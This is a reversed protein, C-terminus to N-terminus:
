AADDLAGLQGLGRDVRAEADRWSRVTEEALQAISDDDISTTGEGSLIRAVRDYPRTVIYAFLLAALVAVLSAALALMATRSFLDLGLREARTARAEDSVTVSIGGAVGLDNEFRTGFVTDGREAETWVGDTSLRGIWGPSVEEGIVSRDTSYIARGGANFIDIALISPDSAKEREIRPQLLSIQDLLLGISLNAETSARLTGLLNAVRAREIEEGVKDSATFAIAAVAIVAASVSVVAVLILRSVFTM